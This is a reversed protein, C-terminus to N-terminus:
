CSRAKMAVRVRQCDPARQISSAFTVARFFGGDGSPDVRNVSM